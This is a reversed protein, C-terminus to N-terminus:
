VVGAALAPLAFPHAVWAADRQVMPTSPGSGIRPGASAWSASWGSSVSARSLRVGCSTSSCVETSAFPREAMERLRGDRCGGLQQREDPTMLQESEADPVDARLEDRRRPQGVVRAQPGASRRSCV